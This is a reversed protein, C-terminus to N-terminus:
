KTEENPKLANLTFEIVYKQHNAILENYTDLPIDMLTMALTGFMFPFMSMSLINLLFDAAPTERITGKAVEEEIRQEIKCFSGYPNRKKIRQTLGEPNLSVENLIFAAIQPYEFLIEYYTRIWTEILELFPLESNITEFLRKTLVDLADEFIIEFLNYKSKFYYNVMAVNTESAKAIDRVSTGKFGNKLFLAQAEKQIRDKVVSSDENNFM